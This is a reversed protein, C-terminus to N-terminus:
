EQGRRGCCIGYPYAPRERCVGDAPSVAPRKFLRRSLVDRRKVHLTMATVFVLLAAEAGLIVLLEELM